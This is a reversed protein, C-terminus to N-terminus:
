WREEANVEAHMHWVQRVWYDQVQADVEQITTCQEGNSSLIPLSGWAPTDLKLWSHTRGPQTSQTPQTPQTPLRDKWRQIRVVRM